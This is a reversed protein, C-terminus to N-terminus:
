VLEQDNTWVLSDTIFGMGIWFDTYIKVQRDVKEIEFIQKNSGGKFAMISNIKPTTWIKTAGTLSARGAVHNGEFDIIATADSEQAYNSNYKTRRGQKYSLALKRSMKIDLPTGWYLEPIGKNFTEMQTAWTLDTANPAGTTIPIISGATVGANVIKKLGDFAASAPGAVGATPAVYVAGYLNKVLDAMIQGTVYKEIFWRVFPWTTRDLANSTLFSIWQSKLADPFFSQDIKVNFLPISKPTFTVGGKPTFATQFAQLVETYNANVERLVTDETEVVTFDEMDTFQERMTDHIRTEDQGADIYFAGFDSVVQNSTIVTSM